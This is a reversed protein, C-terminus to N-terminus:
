ASKRAIDSLLSPHMYTTQEAPIKIYTKNPSIPVGPQVVWNKFGELFARKKTKNVQKTPLIIYFWFSNFAILRVNFNSKQPGDYTVKCNRLLRAEFMGIVENTTPNLRRASTVIQLRLMVNPAVTRKGLIYPVHKKLTNVAKIGDASARASNFSIKLLIRLLSNYDYLLDASEGPLVASHMYKDYIDYFKSDLESLIGNNCLKCVDKIVLDSKFTKDSKDNLSLMEEDYRRIISGPFIHERTLNEPSNCYACKRKLVKM